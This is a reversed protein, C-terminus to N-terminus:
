PSQGGGTILRGLVRRLARIDDSREALLRDDTDRTSDVRRVRDAADLRRALAVEHRGRDAAEKARALDVFGRALAVTETLLVGGTAALAEAQALRAEALAPRDLAALSAALRALCLARSRKDESGELLALAREHLPLAREAGGLELELMGLNGLAIALLRADRMPELLSVAQGFLGRAVQPDGIEGELVALNGIFNARQRTEGAQELLAIAQRYLAAAGALEGDDHDIAGLNGLCRGLMWPDDVPRLREIAAEYFGRALLWDHELHHVVGLDLLVLGERHPDGRRRADDLCLALDARSRATRGAPADFRARIQRLAMGLAAAREDGSVEARAIARDLLPFYSAAAGRPVVAAQLALLTQCGAAVDGEDESLAFEAAAFLNDVDRELRALADGAPSGGARAHAEAFYAAHRRLAAAPDGTQRLKEWALDRVPAPMTLRTEGTAEISRASVLSHDRLGQVVALTSAGTARIVAEAAEFTFGGRFVACQALAERETESLLDFSGELMRRMPAQVTELGPGPAGGADGELRAMLGDLGLIQATPAALEIALPNGELATVVREARDARRAPQGTVEATLELLLAAAPSPGDPGPATSLPGLELTAAGAPAWKRRSTAMVQLRPATKRFARALAGVLPAVHEIPDVLLLVRGLKDLASGLAMEPAAGPDLSVGAATAVVRVVDDADRAEGLDAYVLADWRPSRTAVAERLAEIALRTKGVGPGGWVTCLATGARLLALLRDREQGRGVFSGPMAPLVRRVADLADNAGLQFSPRGALDDEDDRGGWGITRDVRPPDTDPRETRSPLTTSAALLKGLTEDVIAGLAAAAPRRSPDRDLLQAVLADLAPSLGPRGASPVPMPEFLIRALVTVPDEGDFARKGTLCEYLICGLAFVDAKDDVTRASRIQEPAMYRPTGVHDGTATMGATALRAVGFDVVIAEAVDGGPLMVNSPKLDRHVVGAAHVAALGSALRAVLALALASPLGSAALREELTQGVVWAMVLFPGVGPAAGHDVYRVVAPHRVEALARAERLLRLQARGGFNADVRLTKLAVTADSVADHAEYVDGMGGAGARRVVRYRGAVLDGQRM